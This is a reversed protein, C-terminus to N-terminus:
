KDSLLTVKKIEKKKLIWLDFSIKIRIKAKKKERHILSKRIM